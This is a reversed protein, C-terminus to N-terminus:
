LEILSIVPYHDSIDEKLIYHKKVTIDPHSMIYDIRLGPLKGSYTAGFGSGKEKFHDVLENSLVRYTYSVPPDNFDGCLVVPFPSQNILKVLTKAQGARQRSARILRGLVTRANNWTEKKQIDETSLKDTYPSIRNSQLHVSFVRITKGNLNFDAWAFGNSSNNFEDGGQDIFPYKSVITATGNSLRYKYQPLNDYFEMSRFEHICLIDPSEKKLFAELDKKFSKNSHIIKGGVNYQLIKIGETESEAKNSNFGILSTLHNWGLLIILLPLLAYKHKQIAWVILLLINLLLFLPYLIGLISIQWLDQPNFSPSSYILLTSLATFITVGWLVKRLLQM